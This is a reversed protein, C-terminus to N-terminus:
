TNDIEGSDELAAIVQGVGEDLSCVAQNVQRVWDTLTKEGDASIGGKSQGRALVPEGSNGPVWQEITRSYTPKGERPPYIDTPDPVVADPYHDRHREAPTFPGHVGGYCLWLFFPKPEEEQARKEFYDLTWRTYNDTSYGPELTAEGGDREILQDCYYNRSNQHHRPRNWVIQHDWDRGYGTDVGTHWKGIQITEYGSERLESPWFRCVKPDYVSKPYPGAMRMTEVGYTHRGTLITARSPMCWTGITAHHFRVGKEALADINPTDVWPYSEPYASVTRYSQDDTYILLINPREEAVVPDSFISVAHFLLGFATRM